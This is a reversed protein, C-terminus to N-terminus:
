CDRKNVDVEEPGLNFFTPFAPVQWDMWNCHAVNHPRVKNM